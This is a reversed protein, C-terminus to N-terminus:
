SGRVGRARMKELPNPNAERRLVGDGSAKPEEVEFEKRSHGSGNIPEELDNSDM